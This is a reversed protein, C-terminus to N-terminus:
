VHARGIEEGVNKEKIEAVIDNMFGNNNTGSKMFYYIREIVITAVALSCLLIPIMLIGGKLIISIM